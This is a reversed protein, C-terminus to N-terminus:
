GSGNRRLQESIEDLHGRIKQIHGVGVFVAGSIMCASGMVGVFFWLLVGFGFLLWGAIIVGGGMDTSVYNTTMTSRQVGGFKNNRKGSGIQGANNEHNETTVKRLNKRVAEYDSEFSVRKRINDAEIPEIKQSISQVSAVEICAGSTPDQFGELLAAKATGISDADVEVSNTTGDKAVINAAYIPM